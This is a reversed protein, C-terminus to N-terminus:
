HNMRFEPGTILTWCLQKVADEGRELFKVGADIEYQDPLRNVILQFAKIVKESLTEQALIDTITSNNDSFVFEEILPNNSLFLAQQVSPSYVEPLIKPFKNVVTERLKNYDIGSFQGKLDPVNGTAILMSKSFAEASLPKVLYYSFTDPEPKIDGIPYSSLQYPKSSLISKILNKVDYGSEAFSEGLYNLLEPHSPPHSSDMKDIPNVIGRGMLLAWLRNVMAKSFSPNDNSFAIEALKERRSFKPEPAKNIKIVNYGKKEKSNKVFWNKDPPNKYLQESEKKSSDNEDKIPDQDVMVLETDYSKGSLDAFKSFGGTAREAVRLGDNTDVNLSRNFFSVMGWYHRQEIEPSVPHDHCQACQIQKGLLSSMTLTAMKSYDNRQEFLFWSAGSVPGDKPKAIVIDKAVKDWKRNTKFAWKLYDLWGNKVRDDRSRKKESERGLLMASFVEAMYDFHENSNLLKDILDGRKLPSQNATFNKIEEYTPIRGVVDLYVRRCFIGDGAVPSAKIGLKSWKDIIAFDIAETIGIDEPIDLGQDNSGDNESKNSLSEIWLKIFEIEDVKLQGKPPMHPEADELLVTYISSREPYTKDVVPGDEGGALVSEVSRLDLGSKKKAGGHCKVCNSQLIPAVHAKWLDGFASGHLCTTIFITLLIKPM